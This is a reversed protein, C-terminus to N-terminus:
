LIIRFTILVQVPCSLMKSCSAVSYISENDRSMANTSRVLDYLTEVRNQAQVFEVYSQLKSSSKELYRNSYGSSNLCFIFLACSFSNCPRALHNGNFMFSWAPIRGEKLESEWTQLILAGLPPRTLGVGTVSLKEISLKLYMRAFNTM